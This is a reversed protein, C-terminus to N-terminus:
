HSPCIILESTTVRRSKARQYSFLGVEQKHGLEMVQRELEPSELDVPDIVEEVREPALVFRLVVEDYVKAPNNVLEQVMNAGARPAFYHEIQPKLAKEILNKLDPSAVFKNRFTGDTYDSVIGSLRTADEDMEIDQIFALIPIHNQRAQDFEEEVALKGSPTVWGGRKGIILIFIDSSDVGDLCANRPTEPLAVFDEAMVPEGGAAIIGQRAAKRFDEFGEMVSSVFVRPKPQAMEGM